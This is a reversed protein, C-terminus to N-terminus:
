SNSIKLRVKFSYKGYSIVKENCVTCVLHYGFFFVIIVFHSTRNFQLFAIRIRKPYRNFYNGICYVKAIRIIHNYLPKNKTYKRNSYHFHSWFQIVISVPAVACAFCNWLDCDVTIVATNIGETWDAARDNGQRTKQGTM